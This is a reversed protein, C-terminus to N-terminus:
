HLDLFDDHAAYHNLCKIFEDISASPKQKYALDVVDQFHERMYCVELALSKVFDPFFENDDEDFDPVDGVYVVMGPYLDDTSNPAYVMYVDERDAKCKVLEILDDIKYFMNVIFNSVLVPSTGDEGAPWAAVGGILAPGGVRPELLNDPSSAFVLRSSM